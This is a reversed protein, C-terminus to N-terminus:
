ALLFCTQALKTTVTGTETRRNSRVGLLTVSHADDQVPSSISQTAQVTAFTTPMLVSVERVFVNRLHAPFWLDAVLAVSAASSGDNFPASTRLSAVIVSSMASFNIRIM